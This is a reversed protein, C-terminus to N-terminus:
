MSFMKLPTTCGSQVVPRSTNPVTSM